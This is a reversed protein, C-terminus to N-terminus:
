IPHQAARHLDHVAERLEELIPHSWGTGLADLVERFYWLTEHMPVSFREFIADGIVRHDRLISNCNHLKDAASILKLDATEDRLKALYTEKRPKWPPKPTVVTDSLAVVFDAVRPGFRARLDAESVEPIDELVDHLLAAIIQEEDGGHEGVSAAVAFLHTVYPITTQKRVKHKFKDVVFAAADGMRPGYAVTM